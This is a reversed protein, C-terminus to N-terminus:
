KPLLVGYADVVVVFETPSLRGDKDADAKAFLEGNRDLYEDKAIGEPKALDLKVLLEERRKAIKDLEKQDANEKAPVLQVGVEQPTLRADNNADIADFIVERFRDAETRDVSGDGNRDAALFVIVDRVPDPAALAGVPAAFTALAVALCAMRTM